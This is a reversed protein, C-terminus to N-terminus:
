HTSFVRDLFAKVPGNVADPAEALAMHRLGPLIVVEAGAIEAAIARAMDPNNGTDQDGTIVLAPCAIPPSPAVIETVGTALVRYNLPYIEPYNALIWREVLAMMDPNAARYAPTFWRELANEVTGAPGEADVLAVRAEVAAQAEPSRAHASNLIVLAAARDPHDMAFRRCIMGGMSFGLIAAKSGGVAGLLVALQASFVSLSPTEAAAPSDGHGYLDFVLVRYRGSLAPVMWQWCDRNLGLGHILVVLPADEPGYLDYATGDPARM